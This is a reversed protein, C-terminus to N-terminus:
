NCIFTCVTVLNRIFTSYSKFNISRLRVMGCKDFSTANALMNQYALLKNSVVISRLMELSIYRTSM